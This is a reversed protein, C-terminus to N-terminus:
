ETGAPVPLRFYRLITEQGQVLQDLQKQLNQSNSDQSSDRLAQVEKNVYNTKEAEVARVRADLSAISIYVYFIGASVPIAYGLLIPVIKEMFYTRPQATENIKKTM